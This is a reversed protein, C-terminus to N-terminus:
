ALRCTVCYGCREVQRMKLKIVMLRWVPLQLAVARSNRERLECHDTQFGVM